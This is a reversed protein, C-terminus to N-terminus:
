IMGETKVEGAASFLGKSFNEETLRILLTCGQVSSLSSNQTCFESSSLVVAMRAWFRVDTYM